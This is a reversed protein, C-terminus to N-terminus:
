AFCSKIKKDLEEWEKIESDSPKEKKEFLEKSREERKKIQKKLDAPIIREDQKFDEGFRHRHLDVGPAQALGASGNAVVTAKKAKIGEKQGSRRSVEQGEFCVHSLRILASLVHGWCGVM